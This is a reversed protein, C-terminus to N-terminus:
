ACLFPYQNFASGSGKPDQGEVPAAQGAEDGAILLHELERLHQCDHLLDRKMKDRAGSRAVICDGSRAQKEVVERM